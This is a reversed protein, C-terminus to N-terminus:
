IILQKKDKTRFLTKKMLPHMVCVSVSTYIVYPLINYILAYISIAKYVTFYEFACLTFSSIVVVLLIKVFEPILKAVKYLSRSILSAAGVALVVAPFVRGAESGSLVGCILIIWATLSFEWEYYAFVVAFVLLLDPASGNFNIVGSFVTQFLYILLMWVVIKFKRM